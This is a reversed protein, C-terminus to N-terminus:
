TAESIAFNISDSMVSAVGNDEVIQAALTLNLCTTQEKPLSLECSDKCDQVAQQHANIKDCDENFTSDATEISNKSTTEMPKKRLIKLLKRKRRRKRKKKKKNKKKEDKEDDDDDDDDDDEEMEEKDDLEEDEPISSKRKRNGEEEADDEDEDGDDDGDGDDSAAWKDDKDDDGDGDEAEDRVEDNTVEDEEDIYREEDAQEQDTGGGDGESATDDNRNARSDATTRDNFSGQRGSDSADSDADHTERHDDKRTGSSTWDGSKRARSSSGVTPEDDAVQEDDADPSTRQQQPQQHRDDADNWIYQQRDDPSEPTSCEFSSCFSRDNGNANGGDRSTADGHPKSRQEGRSDSSLSRPPQAGGPPRSTSSTPLPPVNAHHSHPRFWEFLPVADTPKHSIIDDNAGTEVDDNFLFQL